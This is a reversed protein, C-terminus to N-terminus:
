NFWITFGAQGWLDASLGLEFGSVDEVPQGNEVAVEPPGALDAVLGVSAFASLYQNFFYEGTFGSGLGVTTASSDFTMGMTEDSLSLNVIDVGFIVSLHGRQWNALKYAGYLGVELARTTRDLEAGATNNSESTFGFGLTALLGFSPGIYTRINLGHVGGLTTNAGLGFSGKKNAWDVATDEQAAAPRAFLATALVTTALISTRM